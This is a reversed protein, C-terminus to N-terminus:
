NEIVVNEESAFVDVSGDENMECTIEGDFEEPLDKYYVCFAIYELAEKMSLKKHIIM